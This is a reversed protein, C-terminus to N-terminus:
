VDFRLEGRLSLMKSVDPLMPVGVLLLLALTPRFLLHSYSFPLPLGLLGALPLLLEKNEQDPSSSHPRETRTQNMIITIAYRVFVNCPRSPYLRIASSVGDSRPCQFTMGNMVQGLIAWRESKQIM